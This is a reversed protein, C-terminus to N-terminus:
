SLSTKRSQKLREATVRKQEETMEVKGRVSVSGQITGQLAILEGSDEHYVKESPYIDSPVVKDEYKRAHSPYDTYIQWTKTDPEYTLITEQETRPLPKRTKKEFEKTM